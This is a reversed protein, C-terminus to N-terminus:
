REVGFFRSQAPYQKSDCESNKRGLDPTRHCSGRQARTAAGSEEASHASPPERPREGELGHNTESLATKVSMM